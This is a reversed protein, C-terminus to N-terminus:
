EDGEIFSKAKENSELLIKMEDLADDVWDSFMEFPIVSLFKFKELGMDYVKRLKLKGTGSGLEREAISVAYLLWEKINQIQESTPKALWNYIVTSAVVVVAVFVIILTYNEILWEM